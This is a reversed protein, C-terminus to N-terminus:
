YTIADKTSKGQRCGYQKELFLKTNELFDAPRAKFVKEFIKPFVSILSMPM